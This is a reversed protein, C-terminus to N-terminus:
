WTAPDAVVVGGSPSGGAVATGTVRGGVVVFTGDVGVATGVVVTARALAVVPLDTGAPAVAVVTGAEPVQLSRIKEVLAALPAILM